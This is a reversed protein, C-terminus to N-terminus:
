ENTEGKSESIRAGWLSMLFGVGGIKNEHSPEFSRLCASLHSMAASADIGEDFELPDIGKYFWTSAISCFKNTRWQKQYENPLDDRHPLLTGVVSAPFAATLGDVAQPSLWKEDVKYEESM